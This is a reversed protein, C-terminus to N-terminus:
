ATWLLTSSFLLWARWSPYGRARTARRFEASAFASDFGRRLLEDHIAAAPLVTRNHPSVFWRFAAPVSIDFETGEKVVLEWHSGKKGIAWIMDADLRYLAKDVLSFAEFKTFESM